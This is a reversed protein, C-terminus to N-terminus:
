KNRNKKENIPKPPKNGDISIVPQEENRKKDKAM